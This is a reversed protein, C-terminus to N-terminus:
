LANVGKAVAASRRRGEAIGALRHAFIMREYLRWNLRSQPAVRDVLGVLAGGLRRRWPPGSQEAREPRAAPWFRMKEAAEPADRIWKEWFQWATIGMEYERRWLQAPRMAPHDHLGRAEPDFVIRGGARELRLGLDLDEWGYCQFREDFGGLELFLARDLSLNGTAFHLFGADAPDAIDNQPNPEAWHLFPPSGRLGQWPYPGVLATLRERQRRHRALCGPQVMVDDGLFLVREGRAEQVGRNRAAGRGGHAIRILRLELRGRWAQEIPGLDLQGGDDVIIVELPEGDREREIAKVCRSLPEPREYTNIIVSLLM